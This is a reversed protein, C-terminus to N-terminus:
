ACKNNVCNNSCCQTPHTCAIGAIYRNACLGNYCCGTYENPMCCDHDPLCAQTLPVCTRAMAPIPAMVTLVAPILLSGLGIRQLAKRRSLGSVNEPPHVPSALLNAKNLQNIALWVASEDVAISLDAGMLKAIESVSRQGDCHKWALAATQNLCHATHAKLDYVLVEDPLERTVLDNTRAQPTIPSNKM